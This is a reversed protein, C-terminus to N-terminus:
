LKLVRALRDDGGDDARLGALAADHVPEPSAGGQSGVDDQGSPTGPAAGPRSIQPVSVARPSDPAMWGGDVLADKVGELAALQRRLEFNEELLANGGQNIQNAQENTLMGFMQGMAIVCQECIIVAGHWEMQITTDIFRSRVSGPCFLCTGPLAVVQDATIVFM